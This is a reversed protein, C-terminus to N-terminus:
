VSNQNVIAIIGSDDAIVKPGIGCGFGISIRARSSECTGTEAKTYFMEREGNCCSMIIPHQPKNQREIVSMEIVSGRGVTLTKVTDGNHVNVMMVKGDKNGVLVLDPALVLSRLSCVLGCNTIIRELTIM